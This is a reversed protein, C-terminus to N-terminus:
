DWGSRLQEITHAPRTGWLGRGSGRLALVGKARRQAGLASLPVLAAVPRGHRSIVHTSGEGATRVLEPLTSRAQELGIPRTAPM